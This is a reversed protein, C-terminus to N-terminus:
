SSFFIHMLFLSICLIDNASSSCVSVSSVYITTSVIFLSDSEDSSCLIIIWFVPLIYGFVNKNYFLFQSCSRPWNASYPPVTSKFFFIYNQEDQDLLLSFLTLFLFQISVSNFLYHFFHQTCHFLPGLMQLISGSTRIEM